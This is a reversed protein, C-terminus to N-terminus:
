RGVIMGKKSWLKDGEGVLSARFIVTKFLITLVNLTKDLTLSYAKNPQLNKIKTLEKPKLPFEKNLEGRLPM